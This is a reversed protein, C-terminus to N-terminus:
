LEECGLYECMYSRLRQIRKKKTGFPSSKTILCAIAMPICTIIFIISFGLWDYWRMKMDKDPSIEGDFELYDDYVTIPAIYRYNCNQSTEVGVEIKGGRLYVVLPSHRSPNNKNFKDKAESYKKTFDEVNGRFRFKM